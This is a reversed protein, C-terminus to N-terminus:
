DAYGDKIYARLQEAERETQFEHLWDALISLPAKPDLKTESHEAHERWHDIKIKRKGWEAVAALSKNHDSGVYLVHGGATLVLYVNAILSQEESNGIRCSGGGYLYLDLVVAGCADPDRVVSVQGELYSTSWLDAEEEWLLMNGTYCQGRGREGREGYEIHHIRMGTAHKVRGIIARTQKPSLELLDPRKM